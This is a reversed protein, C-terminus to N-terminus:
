NIFHVFFLVFLNCVHMSYRNNLLNKVAVKTNDELAGYYVIGYGGEGIVNEASFGNTSAELERLTYWHGWGMHSVEPGNTVPGPESILRAEGSGNGLMSGQGGKEPYSIRHGKGIEIHIRQNENPNPEPDPAPLLLKLPAQEQRTPVSRIEQIERSENPITSIKNKLSIRKNRRSTFWFSIFFLFIVIASGVCIGLVVWLRLGFISTKRSLENNLFAPKGDSM